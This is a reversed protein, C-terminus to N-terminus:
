LAISDFNDDPVLISYLICGISDKLCITLSVCVSKKNPPPSFNACLTLVANVVTWCILLKSLVPFVCCSKALKSAKFSVNSFCYLASGFETSPIPYGFCYSDNITLILLLIVVNFSFVVTNSPAGPAANDLDCIWFNSLSNFSICSLNSLNSSDLSFSFSCLSLIVLIMLIILGGSETAKLSPM